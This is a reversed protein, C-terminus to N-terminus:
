KCICEWGTPEKVLKAAFGIADEILGARFNYAADYAYDDTLYYNKKLNKYQGNVLAKVIHRITWKKPISKLPSIISVDLPLLRIAKIDRPWIKIHPRSLEKPFEGETVANLIQSLHGDLLENWIACDPAHFGDIDLSRCLKGRKGANTMDTIKVREYNQFTISYLRNNHKLFQDDLKYELKETFNVRYTKMKYNEM